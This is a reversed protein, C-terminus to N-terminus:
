SLARDPRHGLLSVCGVISFQPIYPELGKATILPPNEDERPIVGYIITPDASSEIKCFRNVTAKEATIDYPRLEDNWMNSKTTGCRLGIVTAGLYRIGGFEKLFLDGRELRLRYPFPRAKRGVGNELSSLGTSFEAIDRIPESNIRDAFFRQQSVLHLGAVASKGLMIGSANFGNGCNWRYAMNSWDELPRGVTWGKQGEKLKSNEQEERLERQRNIDTRLQKYDLHPTRRPRRTM